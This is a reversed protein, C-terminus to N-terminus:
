SAAAVSNEPFYNTDLRKVVYTIETVVGLDHDILLQALEPGDILRISKNDTIVVNVTARNKLATTFRSTTIFVGKNAGANGISGAFATVEPEGVTNNSWRKAQVCVKEMLGLVDQTLIGDIGGDHTHRTVLGHGYGMRELLEIVVEEFRDSAVSKLHNLIDEILQNRLQKHIIDMMDDPTNEALNGSILNAVESGEDSNSLLPQLETVPFGDHHRNLFNQGEPTIRYRGRESSDLLGAKRAVFVVFRIHSDVLSKTRGKTMVQLDESTLSLRTAVQSAIEQHRLGDTSQAIIELVPRYFEHQPPIAM